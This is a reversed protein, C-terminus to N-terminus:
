SSVPSIAMAEAGQAGERGVECVDEAAAGSLVGVESLSRGSPDAPPVTGGGRASRKRTPAGAVGESVTANLTRKLLQTEAKSTSRM